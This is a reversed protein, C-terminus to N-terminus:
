RQTPNSPPSLTPALMKNLYAKENHSTTADNGNVNASANLPPSASLLSRLSRHVCRTPALGRWKGKIFRAVGLPRLGRMMVMLCGTWGLPRLGRM